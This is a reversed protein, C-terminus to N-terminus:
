RDCRGGPTRKREHSPKRKDGEHLSEPKLVTAQRRRLNSAPHQRSAMLRRLAAFEAADDQANNTPKGVFVTEGLEEAQSAADPTLRRIVADVRQDAQRRINLCDQYRDVGDSM